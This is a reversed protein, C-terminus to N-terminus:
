EGPQDVGEQRSRPGTNPLHALERNRVRSDNGSQNKQKACMSGNSRVKEPRLLDPGQAQTKVVAGDVVAGATQEVRGERVVKGVTHDERCELEDVSQGM